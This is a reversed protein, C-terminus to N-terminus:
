DPGAVMARLDEAPWRAPSGLDSARGDRLLLLRTALALAHQANHTTLVTTRGADRLLEVRLSEFASADLGTDPEDLLLVPPDHMLARALATRQQQGRSLHRVRRDRLKSLGFRECLTKCREDVVAVHYLRGYFSLNEAVTLDSYLLTDHMVVGLHQRVDQGDDAADLGCIMLRGSTPRLLTALLRLLTTKGSGNPGMVVLREGAEIRLDLPRLARRSGFAKGIGAAVIVGDVSVTRSPREQGSVLKVNRSFDRAPIALGAQAPEGRLGRPRAKRIWGAVELRLASGAITVSM